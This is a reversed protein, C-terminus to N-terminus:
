VLDADFEFQVFVLNGLQNFDSRSEGSFAACLIFFEGTDCIHKAKSLMPRFYYNFSSKKQGDFPLSLYSKTGNPMVFVASGSDNPSLNEGIFFVSDGIRYEHKNVAFPGVRNWDKFPTEIKQPRLDIPKIFILAAAVSIAVVCILGIGVFKARM